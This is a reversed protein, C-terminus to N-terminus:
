KTVTLQVTASGARGESDKVDIRIAHQGAPVEAKSMDIGDASVFPKVRDTIDVIPSKLYVVKVSGPEISAGGHAEFKVKLDFPSKTEAPNVLKVSPGRTIGRMTVGAAAAPLGAEADTILTGADAAAFAASLALVAATFLTTKVTM